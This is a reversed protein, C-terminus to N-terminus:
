LSFHIIFGSVASHIFTDKPWRERCCRVLAQYRIYGNDDILSNKPREYSDDGTSKSQGDHAPTHRTPTLQQSRGFNLKSVGRSKQADLTASMTDTEGFGVDAL